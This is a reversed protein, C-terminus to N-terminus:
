RTSANMRPTRSLRAWPGQKVKQMTLFWAAIAVGVALTVPWILTNLSLSSVDGLAFALAVSIVLMIVGNLVSARIISKRLHLPM